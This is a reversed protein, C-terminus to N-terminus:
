IPDIDGGMTAQVSRLYALMERLERWSEFDWRPAGDKMV